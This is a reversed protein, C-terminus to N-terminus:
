QPTEDEMRTTTEQIMQICMAACQMVHSYINLLQDASIDPRICEEVFDCLQMAQDGMDDIDQGTSTDENSFYDSLRALRVLYDCRLDELCNNIKCILRHQEYSYTDPLSPGVHINSHPSYRYITASTIFRPTIM